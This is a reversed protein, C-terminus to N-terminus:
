IMNQTKSYLLSDEKDYSSNSPDLMVKKILLSLQLPVLCFTIVMSFLQYRIEIPAAFVSFSLNAIWVIFSWNLIRKFMKNEDRHIRLFYILLYSLIYILNVIAITIPFVEAIKIQKTSSLVSVKNDNWNFWKTITSDVTDQELNYLGMFKTPPVYFKLFNPWLYYKMFQWPRKSIIYKGYESYLVSVSSWQQLYNKSDPHKLHQVMFVRLPSNIGWQYYLAVENDPRIQLHRLSDMHRNVIWHLPKFKKPVEDLKIPDSYAYGYLANAALQWGSFASYQRTGTQLKYERYTCSIFLSPLMLIVSVAQVKKLFPFESFAIILVSIAPYYLANFRITFALVVTLAHVFILRTSPRYLIWMIQTFWFVSVATFLCDSSVFNSIHLLLPNAIIILVVIRFTWTSMDIFYRLTFLFYLLSVQLILYQILVLIFDSRTFCSTLRLFKSYGIAWLNIFQNNQAAEVYSISDPPMFNPYPYIIKLWTFCAILAAFSFWLLRKNERDHYIWTSFTLQCINEKKLM